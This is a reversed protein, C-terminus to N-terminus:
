ARILRRSGIAGIGAFGPMRAGPSLRVAGPFRSALAPYDGHAVVEPRPLGLAPGQPGQSRNVDVHFDPTTDTADLERHCVYRGAVSGAAEEQAARSGIIRARCWSWCIPPSPEKTRCPKAPGPQPGVPALKIARVREATLREAEDGEPHDISIRRIFAIHEAPVRPRGPKGSKWSWYRQYGRRHWAIVTAPKVLVLPSRWGQWVKSLAVWFARAQPKLRPRNERRTYTALQQRLALNELALSRRSILVARLFWALLSIVLRM